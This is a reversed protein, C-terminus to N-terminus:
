HSGKQQTRDIFQIKDKLCQDFFCRAWIAWATSSTRGLVWGVVYFCRGRKVTANQKKQPITFKTSKL